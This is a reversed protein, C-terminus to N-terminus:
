TLTLWFDLASQFDNRSETSLAFYWSCARTWVKNGAPDEYFYKGAPLYRKARLYRSNNLLKFSESDTWDPHVYFFTQASGPTALATIVKQAADTMTAEIYPPNVSWNGVLPDPQDFFSGLSGFPADTEPFLSCFRCGPKGVLRSNFPSAFAERTVGWHDVLRDVVAQPVGWQQGTSLMASYRYIAIELDLPTAISLLLNRRREGLLKSDDRKVNAALHRRRGWASPNCYLEVERLVAGLLEDAQAQTKVIRCYLLEGAFKRNFADGASTIRYITMKTGPPPVEPRANVMAILWREVSDRIQKVAPRGMIGGSVFSMMEVLGMTFEYEKWLYSLSPADTQVTADARTVAAQENPAADARPPATDPWSPVIDVWSPAADPQPLSSM